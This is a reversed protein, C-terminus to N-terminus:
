IYFCILRIEESWLYILSGVSCHSKLWVAEKKDEGQGSTQGNGLLAALSEVSAALRGIPLWVPRPAVTPAPWRNVTLRTPWSSIPAPSWWTHGSQFQL